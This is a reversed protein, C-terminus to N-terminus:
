ADFFHEGGREDFRRYSLAHEFRASGLVRRAKVASVCLVCLNRLPFMFM